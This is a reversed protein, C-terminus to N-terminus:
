RGPQEGGAVVHPFRQIIGAASKLKFDLVRHQGSGPFVDHM